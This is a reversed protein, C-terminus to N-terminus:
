ALPWPMGENLPFLANKGLLGHVVQPRSIVQRLLQAFFQSVTLYQESAQRWFFGILGVVCLVWYRLLQSSM